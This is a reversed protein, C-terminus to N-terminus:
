PCVTASELASLVLPQEDSNLPWFLGSFLSSHTPNKGDRSPEVVKELAESSGGALPEFWMHPHEGINGAVNWHEKQHLVSGGRDEILLEQRLSMLRSPQM